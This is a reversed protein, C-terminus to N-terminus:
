VIAITRGQGRGSPTCAVSDECLIRDKREIPAVAPFTDRVWVTPLEDSELQRVDLSEGISENKVISVVGRRTHASVPIDHFVVRYM